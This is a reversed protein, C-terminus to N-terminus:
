EDPYVVKWVMEVPGKEGSCAGRASRKIPADLKSLPCGRREAAAQESPISAADEETGRACRDVGHNRVDSPRAPPATKEGVHFRRPSTPQGGGVQREARTRQACPTRTSYGGKKLSSTPGRGCRCTSPKAFAGTTQRGRYLPRVREARNDSPEARREARWARRPVGLFAWLTRGAIHSVTCVTILITTPPGQNQLSLTPGAPQPKPKGPGQPLNEPLGLLRVKCGGGTYAGRGWIKPGIAGVTLPVHCSAPSGSVSFHGKRSPRCSPGMRTRWGRNPPILNYHHNDARSSSAEQQSTVSGHQTTQLGQAPKKSKILGKCRRKVDNYERSDCDANSRKYVKYARRKRGIIQQIENNM